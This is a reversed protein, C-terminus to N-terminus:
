ASVPKTPNREAVSLEEANLLRTYDCYAIMRTAAMAPNRWLVEEQTCLASLPQDMTRRWITEGKILYEVAYRVPGYTGEDM